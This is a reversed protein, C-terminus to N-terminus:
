TREHPEQRSASEPPLPVDPPPFPQRPHRERRLEKRTRVVHSDAAFLLGIMAGLFAGRWPTAMMRCLGGACQMLYGLGAGLAAGGIGGILWAQKM